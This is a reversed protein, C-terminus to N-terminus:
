IGTELWDILHRLYAESPAQDHVPLVPAARYMRALHLLKAERAARIDSPDGSGGDSFDPVYEVLWGRKSYYSFDSVNTILVPALRSNPGLRAGPLRCRAVMLGFRHWWWNWPQGPQGSAMIVTISTIGM